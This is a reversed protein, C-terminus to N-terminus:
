RNLLIFYFARDARNRKINTRGHAGGVSVCFCVCLFVDVWDFRTCACLCVFVSVSFFTCASDRRDSLSRVLTCRVLSTRDPKTVVNCSKHLPLLDSRERQRGTDTNGVVCVCRVLERRLTCRSVLAASRRSWSKVCYQTMHRTFLIHTVDARRASARVRACLSVCLLRNKHTSLLQLQIIPPQFVTHYFPFLM